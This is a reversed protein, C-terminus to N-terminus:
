SRAADPRATDVPMPEPLVIRSEIDVARGEDAAQLIGRVVEVIHAGLMGSARHPQGAAISEVMDHLGIGRADRAGRSTYQVDEWGGRGRKLRVEGAFNNPDPLTLVGESGHIALDCIYQDSVEFSAVLNALAGSELQMSATTHTPTSPSFREGVRPGLLITRERERTSAFGAVRVISGLLATIATLYYPGMDFLPGAGDVYFIDPNPHWTEQGGVLMAASVSLPEGIGGSEIVARGAQYASGLFIDPACGIRLGCREAEVVLALAEGVDTAVPKETYVHKGAALAAAIVAAHAPAPTLNLILDVSPDVILDDVAATELGSTKSLAIAQAPDLDACAVLEFSDFAEANKVYQRSIVGCGIVGVKV